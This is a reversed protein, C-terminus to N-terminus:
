QVIETEAAAGSNRRFALAIIGDAEATEPYISAKVFQWGTHGSEFLFEAVSTSDFRGLFLGLSQRGKTALTEETQRELSQNNYMAHAYQWKQM